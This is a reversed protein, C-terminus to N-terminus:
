PTRIVGCECNFARSFTFRLAGQQLEHLSIDIADESFEIEYYGAKEDTKYQLTSPCCFFHVERNAGNPVALPRVADFQKHKHGFLVLDVEADACAAVFMERNEMAKLPELSFANRVGGIIGSRGSDGVPHHHLLVIKWIKRGSLDLTRDSAGIAPVLESGVNGAMLALDACARPPIVGGAIRSPTYRGFSKALDPGPTSNVVFFALAIDDRFPPIYAQVYPYQRELELAVEFEDNSYQRPIKSGAYRDHNGPVMIRQDRSLSLGALPYPQLGGNRDFDIRKKDFYDRVAQLAGASGDTTLDGTAVLLDFRNPSANFTSSLVGARDVSHSKAGFSKSRFKGGREYLDEVFHLDSIQVVRIPRVGNM